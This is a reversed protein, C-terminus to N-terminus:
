EGDNQKSEKITLLSEYIVHSEILSFMGNSQCFSLAAEIIKIAQEESMNSLFGDLETSTNFELLDGFIKGM